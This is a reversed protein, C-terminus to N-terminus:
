EHSKVDSRLSSVLYGLNADVKSIEHKIIHGRYTTVTIEDQKFKRALDYAASFTSENSNLAYGHVFVHVESGSGSNYVDIRIPRTKISITSKTM